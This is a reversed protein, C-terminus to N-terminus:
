TPLNVAAQKLFGQVVSGEGFFDAYEVEMAAGVVKLLHSMRGTFLDDFANSVEGKGKHAVQELMLDIIQETETEDLRDALLGMIAGIDIDIDLISEVDKNQMGEAAKGISAGILKFLKILVKLSKRPKMQHFTYVEEDITKEVAERAM